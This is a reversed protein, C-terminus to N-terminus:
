LREVAVVVNVAAAVYADRWHDAEVDALVGVARVVNGSRLDHLFEEQMRLTANRKEVAGSEQAGVALRVSGEAAGAIWLTVEDHIVYQLVNGIVEVQRRM